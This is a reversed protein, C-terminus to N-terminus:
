GVVSNGGSGGIDRALTMMNSAVANYNSELQSKTMPKPEGGSTGADVNETWVGSLGAQIARKFGIMDVLNAEPLKGELIVKEMGQRPEGTLQNQFEGLDVKLAKEKIEKTLNNSLESLSGEDATGARIADRIAEASMRQYEAWARMSRKDGEGLQPLRDRVKGGWDVADWTVEARKGGMTEISFDNM